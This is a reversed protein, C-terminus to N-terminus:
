LILFAILIIANMELLLRFHKRLCIIGSDDFERNLQALQIRIDPLQERTVFTPVNVREEMHLESGPGTPVQAQPRHLNQQFSAYKIM